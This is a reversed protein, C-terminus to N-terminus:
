FAWLYTYICLKTLWGEGGSGEALTKVAREGLKRSVGRGLRM